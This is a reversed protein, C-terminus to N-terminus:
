PPRPRRPRCRAPGPGPGARPACARRRPRELVVDVLRPPGPTRSARPCTDGRARRRRRRVHRRHHRREARHPGVARGGPGAQEVAVAPALPGAVVGGPRAVAALQEGEEGPVGPPRRGPVAGAAEPRGLGDGVVGEGAPAGDVGGGGHGGVRQEVEDAPVGARAASAPTVGAASGSSRRRPRRRDAPHEVAQRRGARQDAAAGDVGEGLLQHRAGVRGPSTSTSHPVVSIVQPTSSSHRSTGPRHVMGWVAGPMASMPPGLLAPPRNRSATRRQSPRRRPRRRRRDARAVQRHPQGVHPALPRRQVPAVQPRRTSPTARCWM